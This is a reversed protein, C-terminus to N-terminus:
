LELVGVRLTLSSATYTPAGRSVVVAYLTSGADLVFPIALQLAQGHSNDNFSKWDTISVTAIIDPLDTDHPDFAANDTFTTNSPERDFFVIDVNETQKATDTLIVSQILGGRRQTDSYNEGPLKLEVEKTGVLDGTAYAAGDADVVAEVFYQQESYSIGTM